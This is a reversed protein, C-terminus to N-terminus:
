ARTEVLLPMAWGFLFAFLAFYGVALPHVRGLVFCLAAAQPLSVALIALTFWISPSGLLEVASDRSAGYLAGIVMGIAPWIWFAITFVAIAIIPFSLSPAVINGLAGERGRLEIVVQALLLSSVIAMLYGMALGAFVSEIL